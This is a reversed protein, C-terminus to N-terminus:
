LWKPSHIWVFFRTRVGCSDRPNTFMHDFVFDMNAMKMAARCYLCFLAVWYVLHISLQPESLSISCHMDPSLVPLSHWCVQKPLVSRPDDRLSQGPDSSAADGRWGPCWVCEAWLSDSGWSLCWGGPHSLPSLLKLLAIWGEFSSSYQQM